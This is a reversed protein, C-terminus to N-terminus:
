PRRRQRGLTLGLGALALALLTLPGPEPLAQNAVDLRVNDIFTVESGGVQVNTSNYDTSIYLASLHDLVTRIDTESANTVALSPDSDLNSFYKWGAGDALLTSYTTWTDTPNGFIRLLTLGGGSIAARVPFQAASGSTWRLDFSLSGGYLAATAFKAPASLYGWGEVRDDMSIHGDPNGGSAVQTPLFGGNLATGWGDRDTDFTSSVSAAQALSSAAAMAALLVILPKHM